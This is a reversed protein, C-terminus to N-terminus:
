MCKGHDCKGHELHYLVMPSPRPVDVSASTGTQVVPLGPDVMPLFCCAVDCCVTRVAVASARGFDTPMHPDCSIADKDDWKACFAVKPLICISHLATLGRQSISRFQDLALIRFLHLVGLTADSYFNLDGSMAFCTAVINRVTWVFVGFAQRAKSAASAPTRLMSNRLLGHEPVHWSATRGIRNICSRALSTSPIDHVTGDAMSLARSTVKTFLSSCFIVISRSRSLPRQGSKINRGGRSVSGPMSSALTTADAQFPAWAAM